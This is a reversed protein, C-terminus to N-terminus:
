EVHTLTRLVSHQALPGRGLQRTYHQCAGVAVAGRATVLPARGEPSGM